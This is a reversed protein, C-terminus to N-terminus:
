ASVIFQGGATVTGASFNYSDVTGIARLERQLSTADWQSNDVVINVLGGSGESDYALCNLTRALAELASGQGGKTALTTGSGDGNIVYFALNATNYLTAHEHGIRTGAPITQGAM